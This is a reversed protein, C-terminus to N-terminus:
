PTLVFICPRGPVAADRQVLETLRSLLLLFAISAFRGEKLSIFLLQLM